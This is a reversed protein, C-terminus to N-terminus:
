IIMGDDNGIEMMDNIQLLKVDNRGEKGKKVENKIVKARIQNSTMPVSLPVDEGDIDMREEGSRSFMDEKTGQQIAKHTLQSHKKQNESRSSKRKEESKRSKPKVLTTFNTHWNKKIAVKLKDGIRAPRQTKKKKRQFEEIDGNDDVATPTFKLGGKTSVPEDVVSEDLLEDIESLNEKLPMSEEEPGMLSGASEDLLTLNMENSNVQAHENTNTLALQRSLQQPSFVKFSASTHLPPTVSGDKWDPDFLKPIFVQMNDENLGSRKALLAVPHAIEGIKGADAKIAQPAVAADLKPAQVPKREGKRTNEPTRVISHVPVAPKEILHPELRAKRAEHLQRTASPKEDKKEVSDRRHPKQAIKSPGAQPYRPQVVPTFNAKLNSNKTALTSRKTTWSEHSSRKKAKSPSNPLLRIIRM